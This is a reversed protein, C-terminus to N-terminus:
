VNEKDKIYNDTALAILVELAQFDEFSLNYASQINTENSNYTDTRSTAVSFGLFTGSDFNASVAVKNLIIM